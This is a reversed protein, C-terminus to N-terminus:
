TSQSLSNIIIAFMINPERSDRVLVQYNIRVNIDRLLIPEKEGEDVPCAKGHSAKDEELLMKWHLDQVLRKM